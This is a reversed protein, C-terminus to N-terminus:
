RTASSSSRTGTSTARCLVFRKGRTVAVMRQAAVPAAISLTVDFRIQQQDVALGVIFSQPEYMEARM